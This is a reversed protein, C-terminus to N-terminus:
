RTLDKIATNTPASGPRVPISGSIIAEAFGGPPGCTRDTINCASYFTASFTLNANSFPISCSVTKKVGWFPIRGLFLGFCSFVSSLLLIVSFARILLTLIVWFLLIRISFSFIKSFPIAAIVSIKSTGIVDYICVSFMVELNKRCLMLVKIGKMSM